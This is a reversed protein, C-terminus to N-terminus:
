RLAQTRWYNDCNDEISNITVSYVPLHQKPIYPRAWRLFPLIHTHTELFMRYKDSEKLGSTEGTNKKRDIAKGMAVYWNPGRQRPNNPWDNYSKTDVINPPWTSDIGLLELINGHFKESKALGMTAFAMTAINDNLRDIRQWFFSKPKKSVGAVSNAVLVGFSDALMEWTWDDDEIAEHTFMFVIFKPPLEASLAEVACNCDHFFYSQGSKRKKEEHHNLSFHYGRVCQGLIPDSFNDFHNKSWFVIAPERPLIIKKM